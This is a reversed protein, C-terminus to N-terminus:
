LDLSRGNIKLWDRCEWCDPIVREVSQWFRPSHDHHVPHCLEHVVVYDVIRNPAIIIKWNFRIDGRLTCSGWQSKFPKVNVSSPSVRLLKAYRQAKEALKVQARNIYWRELAGRIAETPSRVGESM